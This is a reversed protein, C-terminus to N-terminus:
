RKNLPLMTAPDYGQERWRRQLVAAIAQADYAEENLQCWVGVAILYSIDDAHCVGFHERFWGVLESDQRWLGWTNRIWQGRLYIASTCDSERLIRREEASLRGLLSEIAEQLTEPPAEGIPSTLARRPSASVLYAVLLAFLLFVTVPDINSVAM